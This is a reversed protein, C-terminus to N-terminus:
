KLEEITFRFLGSKGTKDTICRELPTEPTIAIRFILGDPMPYQFVGQGAPTIFNEGVWWDSGQVHYHPQIVSRKM